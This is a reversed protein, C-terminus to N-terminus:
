SNKPHSIFVIAQTRHGSGALVVTSANKESLPFSVPKFLNNRWGDWKKQNMQNLNSLKAFGNCEM